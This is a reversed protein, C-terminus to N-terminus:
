LFTMVIFVVVFFSASIGAATKLTSFNNVPPNLSISCEIKEGNKVGLMEALEKSLQLITENSKLLYTNITVDVTQSNNTNTTLTIQSGVPLVAHAANIGLLQFMEESTDKNFSENYSCWGQEVKVGYTTNKSDMCFRKSVDSSMYCNGSCCDSDEICMSNFDACIPECNIESITFVAFLAIPIVLSTKM